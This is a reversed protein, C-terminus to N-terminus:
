GRSAVGGTLGVADRSPRACIPVGSFRDSVSRRTRCCIPAISAPPCCCSGTQAAAPCCFSEVGDVRQLPTAVVGGDPVYWDFRDAHARLITSCRSTAPPLAATAHCSGRDGAKLAIQGSGRLARRASRVPLAQDAGDAAAARSRPLRDLRDPPGPWDMLNRSSAFAFHRTEYADV